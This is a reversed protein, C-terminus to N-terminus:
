RTTIEVFLMIYYMVDSSSLAPCSLISRVPIWTSIPLISTSLLSPVICFITITQRHYRTTYEFKTDNSHLLIGTSHYSDTNCSGYQQQQKQQHQQINSIVQHVSNYFYINEKCNHRIGLLHCMMKMMPITTTM